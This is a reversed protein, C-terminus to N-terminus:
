SSVPFSCILFPSLSGLFILYLGVYVYVSVCAGAVMVHRVECTSLIPKRFAHSSAPSHVRLYPIEPIHRMLLPQLLSLQAEQPVSCEAPGGLGQVHVLEVPPRQLGPATPLLPFSQM